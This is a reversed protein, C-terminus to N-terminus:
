SVPSGPRVHRQSANDNAARPPSAADPRRAPTVDFRARRQSRGVAWIGTALLVVVMAAVAIVILVVVIM